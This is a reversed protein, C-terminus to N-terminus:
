FPLPLGLVRTYYLYALILVAALVIAGFFRCYRLVYSDLPIPQDLSQVWKNTDIWKGGNEALLRFTQPSVMAVIGLMAIAILAPWILWAFAGQAGLVLVEM